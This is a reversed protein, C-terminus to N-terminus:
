PIDPDPRRPNRKGQERLRVATDWALRIDAVLLAYGGDGSINAQRLIYSPHLTAIAVRALACPFYKGREKTIQFNPRILNKASPAGVCLIAYPEIATLQPVLWNRCAQVEEPLPARNQPKGTSWDAARCKVTNTIYVRERGVGAEALAKDLLQGARGVFPRGAKDEQEGPGEGVLVLPSLPDGEGFVVNTRREALPCQACSQAEARLRALNALRDADTM